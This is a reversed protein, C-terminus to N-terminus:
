AFADLQSLFHRNDCDWPHFDRRFYDTWPRVLRPFFRTDTFWHRRLRRWGARDGLQGDLQLVRLYAPIAIAWFIITAVVLGGSRLGYAALGQGMVRNWVDFAVSKHETEELAHWTLMRAYHPEAGALVRPDSLLAHALIATFHELAITGSLRFSPPLRRVARLVAAVFREIAATQPLAAMLARNFEDHERGHMAEQGIFATVAQQLQPDDIHHRLRRVSDIFFREGVPLFLSFTNVFHSLHPSDQFWDKVREPPLEFRLDRRTPLVPTSRASPSPLGM